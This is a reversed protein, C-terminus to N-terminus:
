AYPEITLEYGLNVLVVRVSLMLYVREDAGVWSQQVVGFPVVLSRNANGIRGFQLEFWQDGVQGVNVPADPNWPRLLTDPPNGVRTWYGGAVRVERTPAEDLALDFALKTARSGNMIHRELEDPNMSARGYSTRRVVEITHQKRNWLTVAHISPPINVALVVGNPDLIEKIDHSLTAPVLYNSIAEEIWEKMREPDTVGCIRDAVKLQTVPDVREQVGILLCGGNTNAFQAIDRCTEQQGEARLEDWNKVTKPINWKDITGKFELVLSEPTKVVAALEEVTRIYAPKM